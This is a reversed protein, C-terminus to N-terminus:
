EENETERNGPQNDQRIMRTDRECGHAFRNELFRQACPHLLIVRILGRRTEIVLSSENVVVKPISSTLTKTKVIKGEM